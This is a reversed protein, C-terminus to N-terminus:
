MAFPRVLEDFDLVDQSLGWRSLDIGVPHNMSRPPQVLISTLILTMMEGEGVQVIWYREFLGHWVGHVIWWLVSICTGHLKLPTM